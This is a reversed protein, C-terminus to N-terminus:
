PMVALGLRRRLDEACARYQWEPEDDSMDAHDSIVKSLLEDVLLVFAALAPAENVADVIYAALREFRELGEGGAVVGENIVLRGWLEGDCKPQVRISPFYAEKGEFLQTPEMAWRHRGAVKDRAVLQRALDLVNPAPTPDTKPM